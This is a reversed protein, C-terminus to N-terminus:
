PSVPIDDEDFVVNHPFGVNNVWEVSEGAKITITKPSFALGGGDEGLKVTAANASLALGLTAIGVGAAKAFRCALCTDPMAASM